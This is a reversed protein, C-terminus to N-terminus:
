RFVFNHSRLHTGYILIFFQSINRMEPRLCFCLFLKIFSYGFEDRFALLIRGCEFVVREFHSVYIM